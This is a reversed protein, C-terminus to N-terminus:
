IDNIGSDKFLYDGGILFIQQGDHSVCFSPQSAKKFEHIYNEKKGDRITEYMIGLCRGVKLGTDYEPLNIIEYQDAAHGTFDEFLNKAKKIRRKQSGAIPNKRKKIPAKIKQTLITKISSVVIDANFMYIDSYMKEIIRLAQHYNNKIFVRAKSKSSVLMPKKSDAYYWIKDKILIVIIKKM